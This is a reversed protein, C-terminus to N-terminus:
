WDLGLDRSLFLKEIYLILPTVTAIYNQMQVKSSAEDENLKKLLQARTPLAYMEAAVSKRIVWGHYPAFVQAYSKSAPEKLSNGETELLQEYLVRLMDLGRKVVMLNRSHSGAKRVTNAEIDRELLAQLTGISKSAEALDKVKAIYDREAFRFAIGLCRFLPSILSCAGSFPALEVDATQSNVTVALENFAESIKRLPKEKDLDAM